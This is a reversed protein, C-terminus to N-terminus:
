KQLLTFDIKVEVQEALNQWLLKPIKIKYDELKVIFTSNIQIKNDATVEIIGPLEVEKIVGHISLKGKAKANQVGKKKPDFGTIKGQFTSKPYKETEMYKEDFHEKMLTKEFEFNSIPISFAVSNTAVDVMGISQTNKATIDEIAGDSFFTVLSKQSSYKQASLQLALAALILTWTLKLMIKM